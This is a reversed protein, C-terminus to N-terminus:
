EGTSPTPVGLVAQSEDVLATLGAVETDTLQGAVESAAINSRLHDPDSTGPIVVISPSRRLLWAM